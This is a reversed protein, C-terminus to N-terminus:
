EYGIERSGRLADWAKEFISDTMGTIVGVLRGRVEKKIGSPRNDKNPPLKRPDKDLERIARLVELQWHRQRQPPPKKNKGSSQADLLEGLAQDYYSPRNAIAREQLVRIGRLRAYGALHDLSLRACLEAQRGIIQSLDGLFSARAREERVRETNAHAIYQMMWQHSTEQASREPSKAAYAANLQKWLDYVGIDTDFLGLKIQIEKM